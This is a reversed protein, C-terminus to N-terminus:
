RCLKFAMSAMTQISFQEYRARNTENLADYVAVIASASFSDLAIWGRKSGTFFPKVDYERPADKRPRFLQVGDRAAIRAAQIATM